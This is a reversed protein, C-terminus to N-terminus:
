GRHPAHAVVCGGRPLGLGGGGGGGGSTTTGSDGDGNGQDDQKSAVCIHVEIDGTPGLSVGLKGDSSVIELNGDDLRKFTLVVSGTVNLQLRTDAM